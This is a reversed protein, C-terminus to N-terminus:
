EVRDNDRVSCEGSGVGIYSLPFFLQLPLLLLPRHSTVNKDGPFYPNKTTTSSAVLPVPSPFRSLTSPSPLPQSENGSQMTNM